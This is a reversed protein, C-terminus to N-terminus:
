NYVNNSDLAEALETELFNKSWPDIGKVFSSGAECDRKNDIQRQYQFTEQKTQNGSLQKARDKEDDEKATDPTPDPLLSTAIKSLENDDRKTEIKERLEEELARIKRLSESKEGEVYRIRRQFESNVSKIQGFETKQESIQLRLAERAALDWEMQTIKEELVAKSHKCDDLESMAKEM